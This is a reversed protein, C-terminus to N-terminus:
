LQVQSVQGGVSPSLGASGASLAGRVPPEGPIAPPEGPITTAEAPLKTKLCRVARDGLFHRLVPM